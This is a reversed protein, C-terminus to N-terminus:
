ETVEPPFAMPASGVIDVAIGTPQKCSEAYDLLRWGALTHYRYERDAEIGEEALYGRATMYRAYEEISTFACLWDVGGVQSTCVREDDTVPVFLAAQRFAAQLAEAQGFGAYFAAIEGRLIGRGDVDSM